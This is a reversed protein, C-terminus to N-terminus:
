AAKVLSDRPFTAALLDVETHAIGWILVRHQTWYISAFEGRQCLCNNFFESETKAFVSDLAFISQSEGRRTALKSRRNVDDQPSM